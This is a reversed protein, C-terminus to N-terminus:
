AAAQRLPVVNWNQGKECAELFGAWRDLADKREDFYDHRNYIGEIGKIKHNLCREAVHPPIGLAAL